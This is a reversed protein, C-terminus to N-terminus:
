EQGESFLPDGVREDWEQPGWPWMYLPAERGGSHLALFWLGNQPGRVTETVLQVGTTIM